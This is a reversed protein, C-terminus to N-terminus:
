YGELKSSEFDTTNTIVCNNTSSCSFWMRKGKGLSLCDECSQLAMSIM